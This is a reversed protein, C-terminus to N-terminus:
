AAELDAPKDYELLVAKLLVRRTPLSYGSAAVLKFRAKNPHTLILGLWPYPLVGAGAPTNAPVPFAGVKYQSGDEFVLYAEVDVPTNPDFNM